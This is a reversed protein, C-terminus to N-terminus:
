QVQLCDLFPTVDGGCNFLWEIADPVMGKNKILAIRAQLDDFGM